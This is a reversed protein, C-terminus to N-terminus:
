DEYTDQDHTKVIGKVLKMCYEVKLYYIYLGRVVIFKWTQKPNESFKCALFGLLDCVFRAFMVPTCYNEAQAKHM